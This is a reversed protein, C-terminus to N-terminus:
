LSYNFVIVNLFTIRVDDLVIEEQSEPNLEQIENNQM